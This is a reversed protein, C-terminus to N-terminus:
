REVWRGGQGGKCEVAWSFPPHFFLLFFPFLGPYFLDDRKKGDKFSHKRIFMNERGQATSHNLERPSFGNVKASQIQLSQIPATIIPVEDM